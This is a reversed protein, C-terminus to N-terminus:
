VSRSEGIEREGFHSEVTVDVRFCLVVDRPVDPVVRVLRSEKCLICIRDFAGIVQCNLCLRADDLFTM